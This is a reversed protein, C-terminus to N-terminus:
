LKRALSKRFRRSVKDLVLCSHQAGKLMRYNLKVDLVLYCACVNYILGLSTLHGLLMVQGTMRGHRGIFKDTLTDLDDDSIESFAQMSVLGYDRVRWMVTWCSVGLLRAIM